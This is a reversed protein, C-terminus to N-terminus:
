LSFRFQERCVYIAKKYSQFQDSIDMMVVKDGVLSRSRNEM